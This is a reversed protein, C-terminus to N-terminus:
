KWLNDYINHIINLNMRLEFNLQITTVQKKHILYFYKKILKKYIIEKNNDYDIFISNYIFDNTDKNYFLLWDNDIILAIIKKFEIKNSNEIQKILTKEDITLRRYKLEKIM